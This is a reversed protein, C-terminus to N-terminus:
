NDIVDQIKKNIKGKLTKDDSTDQESLLVEKEIIEIANLMFYKM